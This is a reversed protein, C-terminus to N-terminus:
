VINNTLVAFFTNIEFHAEQGEMFRLISSYFGVSIFLLALIPFPLLIVFVPSLSEALFLPLGMAIVSAIGLSLFFLFYPVLRPKTLQWAIKMRNGFSLSLIAMKKDLDVQADM